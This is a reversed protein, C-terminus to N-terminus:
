LTAKEKHLKKCNPFAGVFGCAQEFSIIDKSVLYTLLRGLAEACNNTTGEVSEIVGERESQLADKLFQELPIREGPCYEREVYM